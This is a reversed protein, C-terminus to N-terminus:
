FIHEFPCQLLLANSVLDAGAIRRCQACAHALFAEAKQLFAPGTDFRADSDELVVSGPPDAPGLAEVIALPADGASDERM